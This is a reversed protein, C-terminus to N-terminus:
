KMDLKKKILDILEGHIKKKMIENFSNSIDIHNNLTPICKMNKMYTNYKDDWKNKVDDYVNIVIDNHDDKYNITFSNTYIHIHFELKLIVYQAYNSDTNISKYMKHYFTDFFPTLEFKKLQNNTNKPAKIIAFFKEGKANKNSYHITKTIYNDM